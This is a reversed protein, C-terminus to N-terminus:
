GGLAADMGPNAIDGSKREGLKGRWVDYDFGRLIPAVRLFKRVPGSYEVDGHHVAMPLPVRDALMDLWLATPAYMHIEANPDVGPAAGIPMKQLQLTVGTGEPADTLHIAVTTRAFAMRSALQQEQAAMEFFEELLRVFEEPSVNAGSM